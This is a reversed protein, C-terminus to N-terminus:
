RPAGRQEPDDREAGRRRASRILGALLEPHTIPALHGTDVEVVDVTSSGPLRHAMRQQLESPVPRDRLTLVYTLPVSPPVQSWRVPQFYHHVTDPVLRVPEVVFALTDDDLPDGGTATRFPEPDAPAGPLTVPEDDPGLAAVAGRLGEAHHPKMCDLGTGGEPPVLAAVLVVATVRSGGEDDRLAAVVGPVVLGGSSHAVVVVPGDPATASVDAVVSAVEDDVTIAALDAPRAGRGPLDVALVRDGDVALLPALRDWFRATSGGGHILVYTTM